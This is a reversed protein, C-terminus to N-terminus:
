CGSSQKGDCQSQSLCGCYQATHPVFCPLEGDPCENSGTGSAPPACHGDICEYGGCDGRDNCDGGIVARLQERSLIEKAGLSLARLRLKKM